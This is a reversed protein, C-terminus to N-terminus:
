GPGRGAKASKESIKARCRPDVQAHPRGTPAAGGPPPRAAAPPRAGGPAPRATNDSALRARFVPPFGGNPETRYYATESTVSGGRGMGAASQSRRCARRDIRHRIPVRAVCSARRRSQPAGLRSRGPELELSRSAGGPRGAGAISRWAGFTTNTYDAIILILSQYIYIYINRYVFVICVVSSGRSARAQARMRMQTGSRTTNTYTTPRFPFSASNRWKEPAQSVVFRDPRTTRTAFLTEATEGVPVLAEALRAPSLRAGAGPPTEGMM